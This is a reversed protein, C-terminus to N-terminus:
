LPALDDFNIDDFILTGNEVHPSEFGLDVVLISRFKTSTLTLSSNPMLILSRYKVRSTKGNRKLSCNM